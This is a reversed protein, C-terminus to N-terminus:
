DYNSILQIENLSTPKLKFSLPTLAVMSLTVPKTAPISVLKVSRYRL